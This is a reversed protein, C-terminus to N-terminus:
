MRGVCQWVHVLWLFPKTDRVASRLLSCILALVQLLSSCTFCVWICIRCHQVCTCASQTNSAIDFPSVIFTNGAENLCVGQCIYCLVGRAGLCSVVGVGVRARAM